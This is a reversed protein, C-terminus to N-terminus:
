RRNYRIYKEIVDSRYQKSIPITDGNTFTIQNLVTDLQAIHCLNALYRQHTKIIGYTDYLTLISSITNRERLPNIRGKSLYYYLYHKESQIYIIQRAPIIIIGTEANTISVTKFNCFHHFLKNMVHEINSYLKDEPRKRIFYFPQYEFSRYVLDDRSTVFIIPIDHSIKRIRQAIDFGSIEPMDIDLFIIDFNSQKHHYLLVDSRSYDFIHVQLNLKESAKKILDSFHSLFIREDDCIAIKIM